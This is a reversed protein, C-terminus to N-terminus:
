KVSDEVIKIEEDTLEYLQYVIQDIESELTSTDAKPDAQKLEIINDVLVIISQEQEKNPKFLPINLLPEKDVQYINGQMKGMNLLWYAILNSNLVGTLYKMNFNNTQIVYYEATVYCPKDSYSFTPKKCKRLSVIKPYEFFNQKRARHLGYPKNDSTIVKKFKDLHHKLNPFDNMLQVNKYESGTYIIKKEITYNCMYKKISGSDYYPKLLDLENGQLTLQSIEENSLVFIGDGVTVNDLLDLMKKTVYAHHPHIGNLIENASFHIKSDKIKEILNYKTENLFQITEGKAHKNRDFVSTYQLSTYTSNLFNNLTLGYGNDYSSCKITYQSHNKNKSLLFIMTQQQASEFVMVDKFTKFNIIQTAAAIHIRMKKGGATTVWNNPAIFSLNGNNKLLDIGKSTFFYWFDMKGNYYMEGFKTKAITQFLEKNGEEGIYPPNGIVVDFGGKEKFVNAFELQWLFYPLSPKDKIAQYKEIIDANAGETHLRDLIINHTINAIKQKIEEKNDHNQESYLRDQLKILETVLSDYKASQWLVQAQSDKIYFQSEDVLEIGEFEDILSNGCRINADLNPLPNPDRKEAMLSTDDQTEDTQEEVAISLWLRLKTIDVASEDIDVAFISNKITDRKLKTPHRDSGYMLVKKYSNEELALYDTINRRIKVIESVMGLPFAGSGVAPDAVKINALADDILSLNNINNKRDYLTKAILMDDFNNKESFTTDEDKMFEGYIIFDKIDDYPLNTENALYNAISERCMYHVIERPTYFAGKSKRDTVDLLNEFIKGLMEPDIAVEKELPEDENMTFNYRDFIDLIGTGNENSFIKNDIDFNNKKDYNNLREFLGGNLFPIRCHLDTFYYNDKKRSENLAKYFLPELYDDFFNKNNKESVRFLARIFDRPGTGWPNGKLCRSILKNDDESLSKMSRSIVSYVDGKKEYIDASLDRKALPLAYKFNNFEKETLRRPIARVGLWGKKQLFYLFALQGMLKKAFQESTFNHKTAEYTFNDNKDLSEKLELYKEKYQEFFEKTVKEVSFAEEIDKINPNKDIQVVIPYMRELATHCPEKVGVLYSYRKAPTLKEAIKGSIFEYDLKIFSLRWFDSNDAYFAVLAANKGSSELIRKVFNRQMSRARDINKYNKLKVVLVCIENKDSDTYNGIYNHHEIHQYFESTDRGNTNERYPNVIDLENFFEKSFSIFDDLCFASSFMEEFSKRTMAM